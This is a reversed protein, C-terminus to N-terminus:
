KKLVPICFLFKFGNEICELLSEGSVRIAQSFTTAREDAQQRREEEDQRRREEAEHRWRELEERAKKETRLKEAL